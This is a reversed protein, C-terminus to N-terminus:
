QDLFLASQHIFICVTRQRIAEQGGDDRNNFLKRWPPQSSDCRNEGKRMYGPRGVGASGASTLTRSHLLNHQELCDIAM